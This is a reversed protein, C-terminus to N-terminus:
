LAGGLLASLDLQSTTTDLEAQFDGSRYVTTVENIFGPHYEGMSVNLLDLSHNGRSVCRFGHMGSLKGQVNMRYYEHINGIRSSFMSDLERFVGYADQPDDFNVAHTNPNQVLMIAIARYDIM